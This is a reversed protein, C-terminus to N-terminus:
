GWFAFLKEVLGSFHEVVLGVLFGILSFIANALTVKYTREAIRTQAAQLSISEEHEAKHEAHQRADKEHAEEYLSLADLGAPTITWEVHRLTFEQLVTTKTIKLFNKEVLYKIMDTPGSERYIPGSRFPLLANYVESSIM